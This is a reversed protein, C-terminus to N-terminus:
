ANLFVQVTSKGEYRTRYFSRCQAVSYTIDGTRSHKLIQKGLLLYQLSGNAVGDSM